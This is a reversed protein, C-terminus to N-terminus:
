HGRFAQNAIRVIESRARQLEEASMGPRIKDLDVRYTEPTRSGVTTGSGGSARAPLLEPNEEVFKKLYVTMEVDGSPGKALLRGDDTRHIDDRIARFALDVKTIGLQELAGRIASNRESEEARAKVQKTEEILENLKQELTLRQQREETLEATVTSDRHESLVEVITQRVLTPLDIQPEAVPESVEPIAEEPM